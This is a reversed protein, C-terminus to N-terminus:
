HGAFDVAVMREPDSIRVGVEAGLVVARTVHQQVVMM